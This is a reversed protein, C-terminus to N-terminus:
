FEDFLNEIIKNLLIKLSYLNKIILILLLIKYVLNIWDDWNISNSRM